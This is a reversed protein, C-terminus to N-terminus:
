LKIQICLSFNLNDFQVPQRAIDHAGVLYLTQTVVNLIRVEMCIYIWENEVSDSVIVKNTKHQFLIEDLYILLYDVHKCCPRYEKSLLLISYSIM